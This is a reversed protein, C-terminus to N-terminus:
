FLNGAPDFSIGKIPENSPASFVIQPVEDVVKYINAGARNGNSLYLNNNRDFTFDGAWFSVDSLLVTYYLSAVGDELRYIYGNGGSGRSESFYIRGKSDFAVDRLYTNHHYVLTEGGGELKYLDYDNANSYYLDREPSFAFSYLKGATRNYYTSETGNEIKYVSGPNEAADAFYVILGFNTRGFDAVFDELTIGTGGAAFVALDSGDVDGDQDFDGKCPVLGITFPKNSLDYPLGDEADQVKVICNTSPTNPVTWSYSGANLINNAIPPSIWSSGGDISYQITVRAPAWSFNSWTIQQTSGPPWVEGGDPADISFWPLYLAIYVSDENSYGSNGQDNYAYVRFNYDNYLRPDDMQYSCVNPELDALVKWECPHICPYVKYELRFGSENDSNDEWFIHIQGSIYLVQLNSPPVPLLSCGHYVFAAGENEEPCSYLLAGVIVDNGRDGNVDGATAVSRGFGSSSQGGEATWDATTSLSTASGYYISVLGSPYKGGVIVDAYEDCNFNGATGVSQGLNADKQGGWNTWDPEDSLGDASGLYLLVKGEKERAFDRFCDPAGIIVDDYGDNNVDGATAVSWGFSNCGSLELRGISSLGMASGYYVFAKDAGEAGVIVDDYGDGNVDGAMAVSLGFQPNICASGYGYEFVQWDPDESLGDTSGYYVFVAGAHDPYGPVVPDFYPAGVIVDDYGDGNVDGATAVSWGFKASVPYFHASWDPQDSLGDASGYYAFADGGEPAGVIVDDYGDGNVDGATSVSSGFHHLYGQTGTGMWDPEDSLGNASGYYAFAKGAQYPAGVIVDGYGDANVDGATSVTHGFLAQASDSDVWWDAGAVAGLYEVSRIFAIANAGPNPGACYSIDAWQISTSKTNYYAYQYTARDYAVVPVWHDGGGDGDTDITLWIPIKSSLKEEVFDCFLDPVIDWNGGGLDMWFDGDNMWGDGYPGYDSYTPDNPEFTPSVHIMVKITHGRDEAYNEMGPKINFQDTFGADNTDLYQSSHLTWATDLGEDVGAVPNELLGELGFTHEFYGLIMAGTTPGCGVYAGDQKYAATNYPYAPFNGFDNIYVPQATSIQYSFGILLCISLSFILYTRLSKM